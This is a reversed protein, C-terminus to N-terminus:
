LVCIFYPDDYICSEVPYPFGLTDLFNLMKHLIQRFFKVTKQGYIHFKFAEPNRHTQKIKEM